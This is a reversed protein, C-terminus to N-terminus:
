KTRTGADLELKVDSLVHSLLFLMSSSWVTLLLLVILMAFECLDRKGRSLYAPAESRLTIPQITLSYQGQRRQIFADLGSVERGTFKCRHPAICLGAHAQLMPVKTKNQMHWPPNRSVLSLSYRPEGQASAAGGEFPLILRWILHRVALAPRRCRHHQSMRSM